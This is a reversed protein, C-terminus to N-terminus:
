FISWESRLRRRYRSNVQYNIRVIQKAVPQLSNQERLVFESQQSLKIAITEEVSHKNTWCKLQQANQLLCLSLPDSAQWNLKMTMECQDGVEKAVCINPQLNFELLKNDKAKVPFLVFLLVLIRYHM